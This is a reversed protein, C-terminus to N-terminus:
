RFRDATAGVHWRDVAHMRPSGPHGIKRGHEPQRNRPLGLPRDIAIAAFAKPRSSPTVAIVNARNTTGASENAGCITVRTMNTGDYITGMKTTAWM